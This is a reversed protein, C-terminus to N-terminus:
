RSIPSFLLSVPAAVSQFLPRQATFPELVASSLGTAAAVAVAAVTGAAAAAAAATCSRSNDGIENAVRKTVSWSRRLFLQESSKRQKFILTPSFSVHSCNQQRRHRAKKEENKRM